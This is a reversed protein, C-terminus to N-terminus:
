DGDENEDDDETETEHDDLDEDLSDDEQEEQEDELLSEDVEDEDEEEDSSERGRKGTGMVVGEGKRVFEYSRAARDEGKWGGGGKVVGLTRAHRYGPYAKAQFRWSRKVELGSHRGLDRINWLTYPEGEFLTVIISSGPKPSLSPLSNKFFSVLLETWILFILVIKLPASSPLCVRTIGLRGILM